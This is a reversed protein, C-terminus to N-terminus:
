LVIAIKRNCRPCNGDFDPDAMVRYRNRQILVKGCDPCRTDELAGANVNGVYVYQLHNKALYYMQELRNVPTAPIDLKYQPFYRSLHLPTEPGTEAAIWKVMNEFRTEDDNLGPIVLNTIELHANSLSITKIAKLVPDLKGQTQQRYFREDFAKLDINFADIFPLISKLPKQNIYGNSVVVNKLGADHVLKATDLMFEYFMFPENYTFAIGINNRVEKAKELLQQSNIRVFGIFEDARCQSINHNQCFTCHLNCGINGVSLINKAPFYHYLPKKEIPDIGLAAIKNYVLTELKGDTNKRVKCVGTQGEKLDCYWPCLM